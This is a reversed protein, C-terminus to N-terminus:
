RELHYSGSCMMDEVNPAVVALGVTRIRSSLAKNSDNVGKVSELYTRDYKLVSIVQSSTILHLM